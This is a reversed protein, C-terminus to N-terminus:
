SCDGPEGVKVVSLVADGEGILSGAPPTQGVVVWNRDVVQNRGQGTADASRSYFVGAAQITDQADQLNMCAVNPMTATAAAAQAVPAPQAAASAAPAAAPEAPTAAPPPTAAPTPQATTTDTDSEVDLGDGIDGVIGILVFVAAVAIAVLVGRRMPKTPQPEPPPAFAAPDGALFAEHGAQARAALGAKEARVRALHDRIPRGVALYGLGAAFLVQALAQGVNGNILEVFALWLCIAALMGAFVRLYPAYRTM